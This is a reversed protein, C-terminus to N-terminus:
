SADQESTDKTAPAADDTLPPLKRPARNVYVTGDHGKVAASLKQQWIAQTPTLGKKVEALGKTTRKPMRGALILAVMEPSFTSYGSEMEAAAQKLLTAPLKDIAGSFLLTLVNNCLVSDKGRPSTRFAWFKFFDPACGKGRDGFMDVVQSETYKEGAPAIWSIHAAM